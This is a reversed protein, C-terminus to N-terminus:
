QALGREREMRMVQEPSRSAIADKCAVWIVRMAQPTEAVVLKQCLREIEREHEADSATRQIEASSTTSKAIIAKFHGASGAAVPRPNKKTQM